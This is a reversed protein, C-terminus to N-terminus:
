WFGAAKRAAGGKLTLEEQLAAVLGEATAVAGLMASQRAVAAFDGATLGDLRDLKLRLTAEPADGGLQLLTQGLMHWRQAAQLTDFRIKLFFRRLSARDLSEVLNTACVFLGEFGEMQVLLENVLSVEWQRHANTRDQFFSDAEDLFLM